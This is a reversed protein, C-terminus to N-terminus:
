GRVIVKGQIIKNAPRGYAMTGGAFAQGCNPCRLDGETDDRVIRDKFCKVLRGPGAKVYKYLLCGCHACYARITRAKRGMRM